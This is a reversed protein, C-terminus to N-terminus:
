YVLDHSGGPAIGAAPGLAVGVCRRAPQYRSVLSGIGEPTVAALQRSIDQLTHLRGTGTFLRAVSLARKHTTEGDLAVQSQLKRCARAVEDATVDGLCSFQDMIAAHADAARDASTVAYAYLVGHDGFATYSASVDDALGRQQVERM